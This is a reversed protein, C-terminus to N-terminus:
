GAREFCFSGSAIHNISYISYISYRGKVGWNGLITQIKHELIFFLQLLECEQENGCVSFGSFLSFLVKRFQVLIIGM